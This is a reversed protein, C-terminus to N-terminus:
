RNGNTREWLFEALHQGSLESSRHEMHGTINMMCGCDGSILKEAGTAEADDVKDSVMAASIEPQRVAFTGGFGCCEKERALEVLEVNSLQKILEKPQERVGMERQSHCSGHWTIKLPDGQDTLDVKLVNLLFDSLEYVRSALECAKDYDRDGEFLEPYHKHMMGACSGSPLVVPIDKPFLGLQARAVERADDRHGSNFAPQGCCSQGQPFIVEVGERKILEMGAVGAKPYFLDVLCTGFFYVSQPKDPYIRSM